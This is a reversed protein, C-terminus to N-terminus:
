EKDIKVAQAIYDRLAADHTELDATKKLKVHRTQKGSGALLGHADEFSAGREFAFTVHTKSLSIIALVKKDRWSPSGYTLVERADPAADAMLTRLGEVIDKYEPSVRTKVFEDVDPNGM